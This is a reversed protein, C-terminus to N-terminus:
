KGGSRPLLRALRGPQPRPTRSAAIHQALARGAILGTIGAIAGLMFSRPEIPESIEDTVRRTLWKWDLMLPHDLFWTPREIVVDRLYSLPVKWVYADDAAEEDSLELAHSDADFRLSYEGLTEDPHRDYIVATFPAGGFAVRGLRSAQRYIGNDSHDKLAKNCVSLYDSVLTELNKRYRKPLILELGNESATDRSSNQRTTPM